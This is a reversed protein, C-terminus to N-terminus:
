SLGDINGLSFEPDITSAKFNVANLLLNRTFCDKIPRGYIVQCSIYIYLDFTNGYSNNSIQSSIEIYTNLSGIENFKCVVGYKLDM